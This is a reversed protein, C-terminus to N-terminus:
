QSLTQGSILTMGLIRLVRWPTNRDEPTSETVPSQPQTVVKLVQAYEAAVSTIQVERYVDARRRHEKDLPSVVLYRLGQQALTESMSFQWTAM